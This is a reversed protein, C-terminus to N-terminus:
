LLGSQSSTEFAMWPDGFTRSSVLRPKKMIDNSVQMFTGQQVKRSQIARRITTSQTVNTRLISPAVGLITLYIGSM